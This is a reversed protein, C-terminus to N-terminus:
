FRARNESLLANKLGHPDLVAICTANLDLTSEKLAEEKETEMQKRCQRGRQVAQIRAAAARRRLEKAGSATRM